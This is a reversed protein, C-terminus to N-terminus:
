LYKEFWGLMREELDKLHEKENFGHGERPYVVLEVPVKRERLARYFAYAQNVPVCLDNEGHVILTPTTVRAAYTIASRERYKEPQELPDAVIFRMDWDPINSQAHFSHFDSVGAGMLAAKFRTTQTVAWATMFGGYSWGMIGVRAADVLGQEILYDVGRMVDQFDKGGMDGVVADTFAVGHGLSGRVNPQLVAFGASALMQSWYGWNETYAWSPGGHVDVILPPLSSPGDGRPTLPLTLLADIQWDDVSEYRIRRTPSLAFTEEAIPNLRSLRQWEVGSVREGERTLRGFWADYPQQPTSHTTAFCRLDPTASFRPGFGEGMVFDDVLVTSTGDATDIIGVQHSLSKWGAYLLRRGDPFWRCYSFSLLAGQTLNHAEGGEVPLMFVDGGILGRDSWEGSIYTIHKGDPSWTLASAQRALQSVQRVTGGSSSVVGIQGRYWDTEDSSTTYYMAIQKGDPSWAYEWVTLGDPTVPEPIDYDYRVTWLRRHRDPAIVKPDNKPEEGELSLFAVRSGDPSWALDSVGNPMACVKKAESRKDDGPRPEGKPSIIFLQAKDKEGEGASTFALRQSDPSWRPCTDEKPGRTLPKPEGGATEVVWIRALEKPKEAVFEWVVFAAQEGNPSLNIDTPIRVSLSTGPKIPLRPSLGTHMETEEAKVAPNPIDNM